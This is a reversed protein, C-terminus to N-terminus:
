YTLSQLVYCIHAPAAGALGLTNAWSKSTLTQSAHLSHNATVLAPPIYTSSSAWTYTDGEREGVLRLSGVIVGGPKM